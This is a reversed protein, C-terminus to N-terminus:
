LFCLSPDHRKPVNWALSNSQGRVPNRSVERDELECTRRAVDLTGGAVAIRRQPHNIRSTKYTYLLRNAM